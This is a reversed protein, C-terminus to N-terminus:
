HYFRWVEEESAGRGEEKAIIEEMMACNSIELHKLNKFTGVVTSSFLYKLGGCNDVILTTLNYMSDYNDDWVKNL